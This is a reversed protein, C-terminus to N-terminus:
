PTKSPARPPDGLPNPLPVAGSGLRTQNDVFRTDNSVVCVNALPAAPVQDITQLDTGGAVNIAVASRAVLSRAVTAMGRSVAIGIGPHGLLWVEDAVLSGGDAVVMGHGYTGAAQRTDRVLTRKVSLAGGVGVVVSEENNEVVACGDVTATATTSVEIGRGAFGGADPITRRVLTSKIDAHATAGSQDAQSVLIGAAHNKTVSGHTLTLTAGWAVGIGIGLFGAKESGSRPRTDTALIGDATVSSGPDQVSLGAEANAVLATGSLDLSAGGAVRIGHSGRTGGGALDGMVVSSAIKARSGTEIVLVNAADSQTVLSESLELTGGKSVQVGRGTEPTKSATTRRVLVHRATASGGSVMFGISQLDEFLAGDVDVVGGDVIGLATAFGDATPRPARVVVRTLKGTSKAGGIVIGTSTPAHIVVDELDLAGGLQAAAGWGFKGIEDLVVDDILTRAIALKSGPEAVYAGQWRSALVLSDELRAESGAKVLVGSYHGRLTLGHVRVGRAGDTVLIGARRDGPNQIIVEAACKGVITVNSRMVDVDEVYTGPAVAIVAGARASQAAAFVSTFHTGDTTTAKADVFLTANAPPFHASCDGVPTCSSSGLASMTGAPCSAAVVPRCGWGSPDAEFPPACATWGIPKCTTSGLFAGTGPGCDEAPAVDLCASTAADRALGEPCGDGSPTCSPDTCAAPAPTSSSSSGCASALVVLLAVLGPSRFV